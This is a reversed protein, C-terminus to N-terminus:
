IYSPKDAEIHLYDMFKLSHIIEGMAYSNGVVNM